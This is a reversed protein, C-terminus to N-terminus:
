MCREIGHELGDPSGGGGELSQSADDHPVAHEGVLLRHLELLHQRRERVAHATGDVCQWRRLLGLHQCKYLPPGNVPVMAGVSRGGRARRTTGITRSGPDIGGIGGGSEGVAAEGVAAWAAGGFPGAGRQRRM